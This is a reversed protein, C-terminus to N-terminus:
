VEEFLPVEVDSVAICGLIEVDEQGENWDSIWTYFNDVDVRMDVKLIENSYTWTDEWSYKYRLYVIQTEIDKTELYKFFEKISM